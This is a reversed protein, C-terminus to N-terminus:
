TNYTLLDYIGVIGQNNKVKTGQVAQVTTAISISLPSFSLLIINKRYM